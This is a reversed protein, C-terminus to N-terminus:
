KTAWEVRWGINVLHLYVTPSFEGEEDDWGSTKLPIEITM